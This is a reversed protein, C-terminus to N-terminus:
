ITRLEFSESTTSFGSCFLSRNGVLQQKQMGQGAGKVDKAQVANCQLLRSCGPQPPPLMPEWHPEELPWLHGRPSGSLRFSVRRRPCLCHSCLPPCRPRRDQLCQGLTGHASAMGPDAKTRELPPEATKGFAVVSSM